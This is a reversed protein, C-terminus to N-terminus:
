VTSPRNKRFETFRSLYHIWLKKPAMRRVDPDSVTNIWSDPNSDGFVESQSLVGQRIDASEACLRTQM